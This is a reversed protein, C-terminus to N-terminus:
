GKKNRTLDVAHQFEEKLSKDTRMEGRMISTVMRSEADKVGRHGCCLHNGLVLVALGRPKTLAELSDAIQKTMEEQIQPRSAIHNIIRHFKSLGILKAGPLVGIFVEGTIAAHHHACTSRMAVPGVVYLEDLADVNPFETVDPAPIYRGSFTELVLMKAYRRATEKANHDNKTDIVLSKLVAEMKKAVEDVLVPIDDEHVASSINDNSFFRQKSAVLRKRIVESMPIRPAVVVPTLDKLKYKKVTM